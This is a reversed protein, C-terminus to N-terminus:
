RTPSTDNGSNAILITALVAGGIIVGWYAWALGGPGPKAKKSATGSAATATEGANLKVIEGSLTKVNVGNAASLVTVSGATLDGSVANSDSSLSFTSNPGIEIKGAKGLNLTAGSTEPTVIISPSFITRGTNAPEGNVTVSASGALTKSSVVIEGVPASAALAVMSYTTLIVALLSLSVARHGLRKFESNKM